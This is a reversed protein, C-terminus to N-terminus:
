AIGTVTLTSTATKGLYSATITTTGNGKVTAIGTNEITAVAVNSSVFKAGTIQAQSGDSYTGMVTFTKEGTASATATKPSLTISVLEAAPAPDDASRIKLLRAYYNKRVKGGMRVRSYIDWSDGKSDRDKEIGMQKRLIIAYFEKMNGFMVPYKGEGIEDMYPDEEAVFGDIILKGNVFEYLKNGTDSNRMAKLEAYAKTGCYFKGGTRYSKKMESALKEVDEHTFKGVLSSLSAAKIVEKNTYIGEFTNEVGEDDQEGYKGRFIREGLTEGLDQTTVDMVEGIVDFEADDLIEQTLKVTSGLKGAELTLYTYKLVKKKPGNANGGEKEGAFGNDTDVRVPIKLTKTNTKYVKADAFVPSKEKLSSLIENAKEDPLLIEGSDSGTNLSTDSLAKLFENAVGTRVYESISELHKKLNLESTKGIKGSLDINEKEFKEIKAIAKEFESEKEEYSKKLEEYMKTFNKEEEASLKEATKGKEEMSKNFDELKGSIEQLSKQLAETKKIDDLMKQYEERSVQVVNENKEATGAMKMEGEESKTIKAKPNAGALVTSVERITGKSIERYLQGSRKIITSEIVSGGISLSIPVGAKKLKVIKEADPDDKVFYGKVIIKNGDKELTGHGIAKLIDWSHNPMVPIKKGIMDDLSGELFIDNYVDANKYTSAIGEFYYPDDGEAKEIQSLSFSKHFELNKFREEIEKNEETGKPM